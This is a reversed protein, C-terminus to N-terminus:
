NGYPVGGREPVRRTSINNRMIFRRLDSMEFSGWDHPITTLQELSGRMKRIMVLITEAYLKRTEWAVFDAAQLPTLPVNLPKKANPLKPASECPYGRKDMWTKFIGWGEEGEEFYFIIPELRARDKRWGLVKEVCTGGCIVLPSCDGEELEFYKNARNYLKMDLSVSFSHLAHKRTIEVLQQLFAGRRPEQKKWAAFQKTSPAFEKMHFYDVKNRFLLKSWKRDFSIWEAATSIYGAVSFV